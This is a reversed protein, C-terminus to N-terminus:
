YMHSYKFDKSCLIHYLGVYMVSSWVFVVRRGVAGDINWFWFPIFTAYFIEDGLATGLVFLYYWFSNTVRYSIKSTNKNDSATLDNAADSETQSKESATSHNRRHYKSDKNDPITEYLIGFYNQVNVVLEPRQLNEIYKYLM